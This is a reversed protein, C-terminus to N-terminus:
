LAGTPRSLRLVLTPRTVSQRLGNGLQGYFGSGWAWLRGSRDLAYGMAGGGAIQVVGALGLVRAPLSRNATAGDGIQGDGGRGWARVSGDRLVAYATDSGAGIAVVRELGAVRVPLPEFPRRTGAGLAGFSNDGWAWVTGDHRLAYGTNAGAAIARVGALGRVRL